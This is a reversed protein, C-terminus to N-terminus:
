KQKGSPFIHTEWSTSFIAINIQNSNLLGFVVDILKCGHVAALRDIELGQQRYLDHLRAIEAVAEAVEAM